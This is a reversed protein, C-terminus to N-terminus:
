ISEFADPPLQDKRAIFIESALNMDWNGAKLCEIAMETTLGTTQRVQLVMAEEKPTLNWAPVGGAARLSLIDSVVRIGTTGGPGLTITRDFSRRVIENAGKATRHEEYEGHITIMVGEVGQPYQGTLDPVGPMRQCDMVYKPSPIPPHRTPPMQTWAASIQELGRHKRQYRTRKGHIHILNRSLPLYSDWPTREHQNGAGGRARANVSLSFVSSNDYYKQLVANRDNDFGAILDLLFPAALGSTDNWCNTSSPRPTEKPADLRAIQEETRVEVTNLFRLRPFWALIDQQWLPQATEFPNNSLILNELARLKNKWFELDKTSKFKNNSLDLNKLHPLGRSLESVWSLNELDNNSLLVSQIAERKEDATPLLDDIVKNLVPMFKSRRSTTTNFIEHMGEANALNSLDLLKAESNYRQFLFAKFLEVTENTTTNPATTTTTTTSTSETPSKSRIGPGTITLKQSGHSSAFSFGNIKGFANVDDPRVFINLTEGSVRSRKIINPSPGGKVATTSRKSAHRELFQTIRTIETPDSWGTVRLETLNSGHPTRTKASTRITTTAASGMVLDGDRDHRTHKRIGGRRRPGTAPM